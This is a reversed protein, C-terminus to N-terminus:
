IMLRYIEELADDLNLFKFQYGEDLIKQSVTNNSMLALISSEGLVAKLVFEPVKVPWVPRRLHWAIRKTLLKNTVPFPATANYAGNMGVDEIAKTFIGVIDDLHIWPMWQKGSGLPAGVFFKIPKAMAALAGGSKSLILGIRIKVVRMDMEQGKDAANEWKLCCDSLFGQGPYSHETLFEEDRDGYYGVASASVFTKVPANQEKITRYLLEASQVRSDVIEKKRKDSWAKDAIGEGALHVITDVGELALPDMTMNDVDWSFVKVNPIDIERRSLVSVRHGRELLYPILGKGVLGTAGTILIDNAM